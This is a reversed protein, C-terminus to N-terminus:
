RYKKLWCRHLSLFEIKSRVRVLPKHEFGALHALSKQIGRRLVATERTTPCPKGGCKFRTSDLIRCTGQASISVNMFGSAQRVLGSYNYAGYFERAEGHEFGPGEHVLGPSKGM